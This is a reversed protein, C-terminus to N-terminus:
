LNLSIFNNIIKIVKNQDATSLEYFIPISLSNKYYTEAGAFFKIDIKENFIKFKYIPIYHFQPKIKNKLLYKIFYNKTINLKKFNITLLFLHFAPETFKDYTSDIILNNRKSLKKKYTQYIQKRKKLFNKIKTLQSLGLSCNIDSLRYNFGNISVDYNWYDNKRKIGHSRLLKMKKYILKSNTTTIGGEGSTISKVPHLSFVSIDAHKCSGIMIKKNKYKYSAGLAHCADEMLYCSLRKKLKYFNIVNEPYGGLYMTILLKVKKIKNRKICEEVLDPTMQGTVPDVDSLFINAGLIKSINYSSIFNISPMIVIDNRKLNISKLALHIAATGSTCSLAFKSKFYNKFKKEFLNVYKGTTLLNEELSKSVQKIDEKDISQKGYPIM